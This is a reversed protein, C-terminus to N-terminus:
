WRSKHDHFNYSVKYMIYNKQVKDTEIGFGDTFLGSAWGLGRKGVRLGVVDYGRGDRLVGGGVQLM